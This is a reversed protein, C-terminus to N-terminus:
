KGISIVITDGRTANDFEAEVVTHGIETGRRKLATPEIVKLGDGLRKKVEVDEGREVECNVRLFDLNSPIFISISKEEFTHGYNIFFNEEESKRLPRNLKISIGTQDSYSYAINKENLPIKKTGDFATLKIQNLSDIVGVPLSIPFVNVLKLGMNKIHVFITVQTQTKTFDFGISMRTLKREEPSHGQLRRGYLVINGEIRKSILDLKLMKNINRYITAISVPGRYSQELLSKIEGYTLEKGRMKVGFIEELADLVSSRNEPAGEIISVPENQVRYYHAVGNAHVFKSYHYIRGRSKSVYNIKRAEIGCIKCDEHTVRRSM